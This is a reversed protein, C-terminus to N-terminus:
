SQAFLRFHNLWRDQIAMGVLMAAVFLWAQVDRVLATLAPGPCLGVLGWGIGFLAAGIVLKSDITRAPAPITVGRQQALRYLVRTTPIATIMVVALSPNWAGNVNLFGLVVTPDAMGSLGLGAGFLLGALLAIGRHMIM